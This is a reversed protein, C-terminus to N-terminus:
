NFLSVAHRLTPRGARLIPVTGAPRSFLIQRLNLDGEPM